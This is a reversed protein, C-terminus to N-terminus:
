GPSFGAVSNGHVLGEVCRMRYIREEQDFKNRFDDASYVGPNRVLGGVEVQWPSTPYGAAMPAVKQKDLSFEYYNNYNTVDEYTTLPDGLEDTVAVAEETAAPQAAAAPQDATSPKEVTQNPM